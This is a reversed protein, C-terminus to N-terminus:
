ICMSALIYMRFYDAQKPMPIAGTPVNTLYDFGSGTSGFSIGTLLNIDALGPDLYPPMVDKLHFTHALFDPV